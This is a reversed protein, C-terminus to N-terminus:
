VAPMHHIREATVGAQLLSHVVPQWGPTPLIVFQSEVHREIADKSLPLVPAGLFEMGDAVAGPYILGQLNLNALQIGYASCTEFIEHGSLPALVVPAGEDALRKVRHAYSAVARELGLLPLRSILLRKHCASCFFRTPTLLALRGQATFHQEPTPFVFQVARGCHPCRADVQLLVKDRYYPHEFGEAAARSFRVQRAFRLDGLQTRIVPAIANFFAREDMPTMNYRPRRHITEYYHRRSQIVGEELCRDFIPSGPYPMVYDNHVIHDHCHAYYFRRTREVSEPTEAFDGYIFNGQVGVGAAEATEVARQIQAPTIRKNMSKLVAPDASELGFGVHACGAAKMERLLDADVDSVRMSVSWAIELGTQRLQQCFARVRAHKVAFLDDYIKLINFRYRAHLQTIESIVSHISRRRYRKTRGEVRSYQCFTCQHPCSRGTLLPMLRPRPQTRVHFYNDSQNQMELCDDIELPEYDPLALADLDEIPLRRGTTILEGQRLLALGVCDDLPAGRELRDVLDCITHEAEDLVGIDPRLAHFTELDNSLICGGLVVPTHPAHQRAAAIADRIFLYEPALGGVAILDPQHEAIGEAMRRALVQQAPQGSLDYSTVVGRVQHGAARLAGAVYAPGQPVLTVCPPPLPYNSQPVVLLVRM